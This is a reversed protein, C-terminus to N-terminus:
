QPGGTKKIDEIIIKQLEILRKKFAEEDKIIVKWGTGTWEIREPDYEVCKEGFYVKSM